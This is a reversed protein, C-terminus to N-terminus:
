LPSLFISELSSPFSHDFGLAGAQIDLDAVKNLPPIELSDKNRHLQRSREACAAVSM